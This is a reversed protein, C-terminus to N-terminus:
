SFRFILPLYSHSFNLIVSCPSAFRCSGSNIQSGARAFHLNVVFREVAIKWIFSQPHNNTLGQLQSFGRVLKVQDDVYSATTWRALRARDPVADRSRQEFVIGIKTRRELVGTKHGAIRPDLFALLVSLLTRPLSELKRFSLFFQWIGIALNFDAIPLQFDSITEIWQRPV